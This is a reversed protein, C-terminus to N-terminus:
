IRCFDILLVLLGFDRPSETQDYSAGAAHSHPHEVNTTSEIKDLMTAKTAKLVYKLQPTNRM